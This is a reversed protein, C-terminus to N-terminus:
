IKTYLLITIFDAKHINILEQNVVQFLTKIDHKSFFLNTDDAFIIHNLMEPANNLYNVYVLFLLPGLISGQPVGCLNYQWIPKNNM